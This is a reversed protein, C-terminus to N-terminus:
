DEEDFVKCVVMSEPLYEIQGAIANYKTFEKNELIEFYCKEDQIYLLRGKFTGFCNSTLVRGIMEHASSILQIRPTVRNM